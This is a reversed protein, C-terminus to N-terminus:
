DEEEDGADKDTEMIAGDLVEGGYHAYLGERLDKESKEAPPAPRVADTIVGRVSGVTLEHIVVGHKRAWLVLEKWESTDTQSQSTTPPDTKSIKM